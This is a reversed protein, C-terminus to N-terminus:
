PYGEPLRNSQIASATSDIGLFRDQDGRTPNRSPALGQFYIEANGASRFSIILDEGTGSNRALGGIGERKDRPGDSSLSQREQSKEVFYFHKLKPVPREPRLNVTYVQERHKVFKEARWRFKPPVPM